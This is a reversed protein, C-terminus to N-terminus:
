WLVKCIKADHIKGDITVLTRGEVRATAAILRDMPDGHFPEPLTGAEAAIADSIPIVNFWNRIKAMLETDPVHIEIRGRAKSYILEYITASSVSPREGLRGSAAIAEAARKSIRDPGTMLWIVVHTDLLIM